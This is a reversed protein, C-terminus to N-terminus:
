DVILVREARYVQQAYRAAIAVNNFVCFGMGRSATAHHGPPRVAAFANSVQSAFIADVAALCGGAAMLAIDFTHVGLATDGTSLLSARRSVDHRVLQIYSRTHVLRLDEDRALSPKISHLSGLLGDHKFAELLAANREPCEPHGPGPDHRAYLPDLVIGTASKAGHSM